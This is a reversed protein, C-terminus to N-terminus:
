AGAEAHLEVLVVEAPSHVRLPLAVVGLGRSVIATTPGLELRLGPHPPGFRRLGPLDIQTGHTHGSLVVACGERALSPAASPNHCLLVEVDGPRLDRRAAALDIHRSEELDELGTLALVGEGTDHREGANRLFRVGAAAFAEEIRAEARDRYDHNGFVAVCALRAELRALDDVCRLADSWHHSIYDGTLAVVDPRAENVVEVVERLDGRGLFRGAHLDSLQAIRLGELGAPLDPVLVRERRVHLGARSLHRRRYLARGGLTACAVELTDALALFARSHRRVRARLPPM